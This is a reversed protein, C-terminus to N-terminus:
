FLISRVVKGNYVSLVADGVIQGLVRCPRLYPGAGEGDVCPRIVSRADDEGRVGTAQPAVRLVSIARLRPPHDFLM